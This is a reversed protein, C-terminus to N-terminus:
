ILCNLCEKFGLEFAADPSPMANASAVLTKANQYVNFVWFTGLPRVSVWLGHRQFLWGQVMWIDPRPYFKQGKHIVGENTLRRVALSMIREEGQENYCRTIPVDFGKADLLKALEFSVYKPNIM